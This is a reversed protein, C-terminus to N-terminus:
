VVEVLSFWKYLAPLIWSNMNSGSFGSRVTWIDCCFFCCFSILTDRPTTKGESGM